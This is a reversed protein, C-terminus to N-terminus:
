GNPGALSGDQFLVWRDSKSQNIGVTWQFEIDLKKELEVLSKHLIVSFEEIEKVSIGEAARIDINLEDFYGAYHEEEFTFKGKPLLAKVCGVMGAVQRGNYKECM